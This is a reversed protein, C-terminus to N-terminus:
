NSQRNNSIMRRRETPRRNGKIVTVPKQAATVSAAPAATTASDNGAKPQRPGPKPKTVPIIATPRHVNYATMNQNSTFGYGEIIHSNRVIHIFSDSYVKQKTQDWFLQQTLFTDRNTNVMVVHGDLRWLKRQSWYIASDCRMSAQPQMTLDYQELDIGDPFKWFPDELNDYIDWLKTRINYRTYGSDSILTTVDTTSMTPTLRPDRVNDVYSTQSDGCAVTVIMTFPILWVPTRLSM